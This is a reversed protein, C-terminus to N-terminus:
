SGGDSGADSLPSPSGADEAAFEDPTVCSNNYDCVYGDICPHNDDCAKGDLNVTPVLCGVALATALVLGGGLLFRM